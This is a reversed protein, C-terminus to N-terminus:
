AKVLDVIRVEESKTRCSISILESRFILINGVNEFRVKSALARCYRKLVCHSHSAAVMRHVYRLARIDELNAYARPRCVTVRHPPSLTQLFKSIAGCAGHRYCMTYLLTTRMCWVFTAFIFIPEIKAKHLFDCCDLRELEKIHNIQCKLMRM